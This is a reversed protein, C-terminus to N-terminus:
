RLLFLLLCRQDTGLEKEIRMFSIYGPYDIKQVHRARYFNEILDGNEVNCM